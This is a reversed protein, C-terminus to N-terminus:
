WAGITLDFRQLSEALEATNPDSHALSLFKAALDLDLCLAVEGLRGFALLAGALAAADKALADSHEKSAGGGGGGGGGARAHRYFCSCHIADAVLRIDAFRLSSIEPSASKLKKLAKVLCGPRM